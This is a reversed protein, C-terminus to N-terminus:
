TAKNVASRTADSIGQMTQSLSTMMEQQAKMAAIFPELSFMGASVTELEVDSLRILEATRSDHM